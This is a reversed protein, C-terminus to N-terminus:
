CILRHYLANFDTQHMGSTYQNNPAQLVMLFISETGNVKIMGRRKREGRMREDKLKEDKNGEVGSVSGHIGCFRFMSWHGLGIGGNM